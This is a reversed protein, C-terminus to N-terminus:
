RQLLERATTEDTLFTGVLGLGLIAYIVPV